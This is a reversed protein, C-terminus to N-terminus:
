ARHGLFTSRAVGIDEVLEFDEDEVQRLGHGGSGGLYGLCEAGIQVPAEPFRRQRLDDGDHGPLVV